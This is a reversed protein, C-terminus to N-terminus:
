QISDRFDMSWQIIELQEKTFKCKLDIKDPNNKIYHLDKAYQLLQYAKLSQVGESVSKGKKRNALNEIGIADILVSEADLAEEETLNDFLIEVAYDEKWAKGKRKTWARSGRGKGVYFVKCQLNSHTYVYYDKYM